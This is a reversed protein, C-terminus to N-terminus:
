DFLYLLFKFDTKTKLAHKLGKPMFFYDNPKFDHWRDKLYFEGEGEVIHVIANKSTTHEEFSEGKAVAFLTIQLTENKIIIKSVISGPTYNISEGIGIPVLSIGNKM